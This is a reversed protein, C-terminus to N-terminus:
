KTPEAVSKQPWPRGVNKKLFIEVLKPDFHKGQESRLHNAAEEHTSHGKRYHRPSTMACYVDVIRLIRAYLPIKEGELGDPYGDGDYCEHHHRIIDAIDSFAKAHTLLEAGLHPHRQILSWEEYDLVGQKLLVTNPIMIKGIDRLLGARALTAIERKSMGVARGFREVHEMVRWSSGPLMDERSDLARGLLSLLEEQCGAARVAAKIGEDIHAKDAIVAATWAPVEKATKTYVPEIGAAGAATEVAQKMTNVQSFLALIHLM